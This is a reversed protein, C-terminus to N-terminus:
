FPPYLEPDSIHEQLSKKINIIAKCNACPKIGLVNHYQKHASLAKELLILTTDNKLSFSPLGLETNIALVELVSGLVLQTYLLGFYFRVHSEGEFRIKTKGKEWLYDLVRKGLWSLFISLALEEFSVM